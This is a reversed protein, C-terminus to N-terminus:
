RGKKPKSKKRTLKRVRRMRSRLARWEAGHEDWWQKKWRKQADKSCVQSCYNQRLHHAIFYPNPCGKRACIKLRERPLTALDLFLFHYLNRVRCILLDGEGRLSEVWAKEIEWAWWEDKNQWNWRFPTQNGEWAQM